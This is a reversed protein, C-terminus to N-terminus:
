RRGSGMPRTKYAEMATEFEAVTLQKGPAWGNARCIGAVAHAPMGSEAALDEVPHLKGDTPPHPAVMSSGKRKEQKEM